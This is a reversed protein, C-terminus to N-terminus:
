CTDNETLVSITVCKTKPVNAKKQHKCENKQIAVKISHGVISYCLSIVAPLMGAVRIM